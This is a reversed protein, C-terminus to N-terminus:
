KEPTTIMSKLGEETFPVSNLLKMAPSDDNAVETTEATGEAANTNSKNGCATMTMFVATMSLMFIFKKM